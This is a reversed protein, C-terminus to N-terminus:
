TRLSPRSHICRLPLFLPPAERPVTPAERTLRDEVVGFGTPSVAGFPHAIIARRFYIRYAKTV